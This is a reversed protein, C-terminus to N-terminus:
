HKWFYGERKKVDERIDEWFLNIDAIHLNDFKKALPSSVNVWLINKHIRATTKPHIMKNFNFLVMGKSDTVLSCVSDSKWTVPNTCIADGYFKDMGVPEFGDRYSAWSVICGTQTEDNCQKLDNYEQIPVAKKFDRINYLKNFGYKRGFETYQASTALNQLVERQTDLPHSRWGDIRWQRM